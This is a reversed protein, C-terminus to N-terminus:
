TIFFFGENKHVNFYFTDTYVLFANQFFQIQEDIIRVNKWFKLLFYSVTFISLTIYLFRKPWLFFENKYMTFYFAKMYELRSNWIITNVRKYLATQKEFFNQSFHLTRMICTNNGFVVGNFIQLLKYSTWVM